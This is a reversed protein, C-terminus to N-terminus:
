LHPEILLLADYMFVIMLAFAGVAGAVRLLTRQIDSEGGIILFLGCGNCGLALIFAIIGWALSESPWRCLTPKVTQNHHERGATIDTLTASPLPESTIAVPIWQVNVLSLGVM